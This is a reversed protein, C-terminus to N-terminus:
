SQYFTNLICLCSDTTSSPQSPISSAENLKSLDLIMRFKGNPKPRLFVNSVFEGQEHVTKDVINRTFFDQVIESTAKSAEETFVFPKPQKLQVPLEDVEIRVGKIAGIVAPDHTIKLWQKVNNATGGAVFTGLDLEPQGSIVVKPPLPSFEPASV